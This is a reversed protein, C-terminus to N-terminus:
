RSPTTWLRLRARLHWPCVAVARGFCDRAQEPRGLAALQRGATHWMRGLRGRWLRPRVAERGGDHMIFRDLMRARVLRRDAFRKSQQAAELEPRAGRRRVTVPEGPLHLWPGLLSIRLLLHYDEGTHYAADYGGARDFASLRIATNPTGPPGHALLRETTARGIHHWRILETAGTDLDLNHRDATCAVARPERRMAEAVRLLYDSPWLDDSDVFALVDFRAMRRAAEVGRNRAAAPGANDQRVLRASFRLDAAAIWSEIAEATQDTSGDDVVVLCAPARTQEGVTHLAQRSIQPRNYVPMIAAIAPDSM